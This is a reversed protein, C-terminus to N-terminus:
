TFAQELLYSIEAKTNSKRIAEKANRYRDRVNRVHNSLALQMSAFEDKSLLLTTNLATIWEITDTVIVCSMRQISLSDSEIMMGKFIFGGNEKEIAKAKLQQLANKKYRQLDRVDFWSNDLFNYAHHYEDPANSVSQVHGTLPNICDGLKVSEPVDIYAESSPTNLEVLEKAGTILSIVRFNDDVIARNM